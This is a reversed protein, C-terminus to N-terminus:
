VFIWHSKSFVFVFPHNVRILGIRDADPHIKSDNLITFHIQVNEDKVYQDAVNEFVIVDTTVTANSNAIIESM